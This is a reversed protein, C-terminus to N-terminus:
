LYKKLWDLQRNLLDIKFDQKHVGHGEGPYIVFEVNKGLKKMFRYFMYSQSIPVRQDNEGHWILLPTKVNEVYHIPSFKEYIEGTEWPKGKLGFEVMNPDDMIGYQSIWDTIGCGAVALKFRNTQTVAWFSMFGGYSAGMIALRDGDAIGMEIVKDVGKMIDTFDKGGWDGQDAMAFEGGYGSSGRFNPMLVAYGESAFIQCNSHSYRGNFELGASDYPGGHPHVILPYKKGPEYYTPYVLVGEIKWDDAGAWSIVETRALDFERLRPNVDTLRRPDWNDLESIYIDNPSLPTMMTFVVRTGDKSLHFSDDYMADGRSIQRVQGGKSPVSFLHEATRIATSFYINEGDPSFCINMGSEIEGKMRGVSFDFDETLNKSIGGGSSIIRLDSDAHGRIPLRNDVYAISEGDPSWVPCIDPGSNTTLRLAEGGDSSVVFIDYNRHDDENPARKSLFAIRKDDPSWVPFFDDYDGSTIQKSKQTKIDYVWIHTRLRPQEDVIIINKGRKDNEEPEIKDPSEEQKLYAIKRWDNSPVIRGLDFDVIKVRGGGKVPQFWTKGESVFMIRDGDSSWGVPRGRTFESVEGSNLDALWIIGQSSFMVRSNDPSIKPVGVQRVSHIDEITIKKGAKVSYSLVLLVFFLLISIGKM